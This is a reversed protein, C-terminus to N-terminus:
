CTSAPRVGSQEPVAFRGRKTLWSLISFAGYVSLIAIFPEMPFRYRVLTSTLYFTVPYFLLVSWYLLAINRDHRCTIVAGCWCFLIWVANFLLLGKVYPPDSSWVNNTRDSVEFWTLGIRGAILRLTRQPHSRMYLVAERQKTAMYAPEGISKYENAEILDYLPSFQFSNVGVSGPNNGMWLMLGFGTRSPILKGFARYNRVTWPAMGIAFILVALAVPRLWRQPMKRAYFVLWLFFFPMVAVMSTNIMAGIAWLAGYGAWVWLQERERLALTSLFIISFWLATLATDWIYTIPIHWATPLVVWLWAAGVAVTVGFSRKAIAYIPLITIASFFCNLAQAAIQSRVTFIGWIKFIGALLYPYVPALWATPGTPFFSLPSSFGHGSAIAKAINGTEFGYSSEVSGRRLWLISLIGIRLIFAAFAIFFPSIFLKRVLQRM